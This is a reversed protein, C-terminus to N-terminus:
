FIIVENHVHAYILLRGTHTSVFSNVYPNIETYEEFEHIEVKGSAYAAVIAGVQGWPDTAVPLVVAGNRFHVPLSRLAGNLDFGPFSKRERVSWSDVDFWVIELTALEDDYRTDFYIFTSEDAFAGLQVFSDDEHGTEDVTNRLVAGTNRDLEIIRPLATGDTAGGDTTGYYLVALLTETFPSPVLLNIGVVDSQTWIETLDTHSYKTLAGFVNYCHYWGTDDYQFYNDGFWDDLDPALIAEDIGFESFKLAVAFGGGTRILAMNQGIKFAYTPSVNYSTGPGHYETDEDLVNGEYDLVTIGMYYNPNASTSSTYIAVIYDELFTVRSDSTFPLTPLQYEWEVEGNYWCTIYFSNEHKREFFLKGKREVMVPYEYTYSLSIDPILIDLEGPSFDVGVYNRRGLHNSSGHTTSFEDYPGTKVVYTGDSRTFHYIDEDPADFGPAGEADFGYAWGDETLFVKRGESSFGETQLKVRKM